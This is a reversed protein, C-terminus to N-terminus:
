LLLSGQSYFEVKDFFRNSDVIENLTQALIPHEYDGWVESACRLLVTDSVMLPHPLTQNPLMIVDKNFVLLDILSGGNREM